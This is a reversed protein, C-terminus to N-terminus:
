LLSDEVPLAMEGNKSFYNLSSFGFSSLLWSYFDNLNLLPPVLQVVFFLLKIVKDGFFYANFSSKIDRV